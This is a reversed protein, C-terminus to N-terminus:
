ANVFCCAYVGCVREEEEEGELTERWEASPFKSRFLAHADDLLRTILGEYCARRVLRHLHPLLTRRLLIAIPRRTHHATPTPHQEHGHRRRPQLRRHTGWRFIEIRSARAVVQQM